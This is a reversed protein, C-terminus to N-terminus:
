MSHTLTTSLTRSRRTAQLATPSLDLKGHLLYSMLIMHKPNAYGRARAKASQLVSNLGELIGNSVRDDFWALIKDRMKFFTEAVNEIARVGSDFAADLWTALYHAAKSKKQRFLEQFALRLRYAEATKAFAEDELVEGLWQRQDKSLKSPNKLLLFRTGKPGRSKGTEERRTADVAESLMKVLHFKDLVVRAKPFHEDIGALFAPSMDCAITAVKKPDGGHAVLDKKFEGLTAAGKGKCAFLVRGADLDVFKTIYNHGRKAATEDLGVRKVQSHDAKERAAAVASELLRWIAMDDVKLNRAVESVPMSRAMALAIAEFLATFGSGPRAWPVDVQTVKGDEGVVRPIRAHLYTPYQWFNLHRWERELTDHVPRGDFKAGTEFDIRIHLEGETILSSVVFWPRSLGLAMGFLEEPTV